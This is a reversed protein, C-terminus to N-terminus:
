AKDAEHMWELAAEFGEAERIERFRKPTATETTLIGLYEDISTTRYGQAAQVENIMSKVLSVSVGPTKKIHGAETAVADDLEGTPVVQNVLGMRRAEEAPIRKGTYLLERAHKLSNTVFPLVFKPPPEGFHMDPYGFEARASAITVDCAIALNCGGALAYGDVKAIVPLSSGIIADLHSLSDRMRDEISGHPEEDEGIDYGASFASGNGTLVVVRVDASAARDIAAELEDLLNPTLANLAEPRDMAVTAVGDGVDYTVDDYRDAM